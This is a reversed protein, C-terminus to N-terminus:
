RGMLYSGWRGLPRPPRVPRGAVARVDMVDLLDDWRALASRSLSAFPGRHPAHPHPRTSARSVATGLERVVREREAPGLADDLAAALGEASRAHEDLLASLEAALETPSACRERADGGLQQQLRRLRAQQGRVARLAARVRSPGDTLSRLAAPHLVQEGASLQGCLQGLAGDLARMRGRPEDDTDAGTAHELLARVRDLEAGVEARLTTPAQVTRTAIM